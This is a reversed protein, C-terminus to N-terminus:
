QQLIRSNRPSPVHAIVDCVPNSFTEPLHTYAQSTPAQLIHRPFSPPHMIIIDFLALAAALVTYSMNALTSKKESEPSSTHIRIPMYMKAAIDAIM